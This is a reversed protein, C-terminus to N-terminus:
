ISRLIIGILNNLMHMASSVELSETKYYSYAWVLGIFFYEMWHIINTSLHACSFLITSVILATKSMNGINGIMVYRYTFEERIPAWICTNFYFGILSIDMLNQRKALEARIIQENLPIAESFIYGSSISAVANTILILLTGIVIYKLSEPKFIKKVSIKETKYLYILLFIISIIQIFLKLTESAGKSGKWISIAYLILVIFVNIVKRKESYEKTM